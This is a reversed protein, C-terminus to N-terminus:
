STKNRQEKAKDKWYKRSEAMLKDIKKRDKEFQEPPINQIFEHLNDLTLSIRKNEKSNKAM